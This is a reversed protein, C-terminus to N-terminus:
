HNSTPKASAPGADDARGVDAANPKKVRLRIEHQLIWIAAAMTAIFQVREATDLDFLLWVPIAGLMAALYIAFVLEPSQWLGVLRWLWRLWRDHTRVRLGPKITPTSVFDNGAAHSLM